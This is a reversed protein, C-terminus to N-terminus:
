PCPEPCPCPPRILADLEDYYRLWLNTIQGAVREVEEPCDILDLLLRETGLLSALVDLNGGLDTHSVALRGEYREVVASTLERVRKWWINEADYELSIDQIDKKQSPSFWVTESPEVVSNVNAGLFGALIGPGCNIWWWPFADGYFHTAALFPEHRDVVENAPMDLPYNSLYAYPKQRPIPDTAALWVLPRELEGAWWAMTDREVRAWDGETFQLQIM